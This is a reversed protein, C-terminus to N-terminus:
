DREEDFPRVGILDGIGQQTKSCAHCSLLPVYKSEELHARHLETKAEAWSDVQEVEGCYYIADCHRCLYLFIVEM